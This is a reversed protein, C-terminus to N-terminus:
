QLSLLLILGGRRRRGMVMLVVMVVLVLMLRVAGGLRGARVKRGDDLRACDLIELEVFREVCGGGSGGCHM